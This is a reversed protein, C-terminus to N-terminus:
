LGKNHQCVEEESQTYYPMSVSQKQQKDRLSEVNIDLERSFCKIDRHLSGKSVQLANIVLKNEFQENSEPIHKYRRELKTVIDKWVLSYRQISYDNKIGNYLSKLAKM